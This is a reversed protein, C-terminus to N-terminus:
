RTPCDADPAVPAPADAAVPAAAVPTPAPMPTPVPAAYQPAAPTAVVPAAFHQPVPARVPALDISTGQGQAAEAAKRHKAFLANIRKPKAAPTVVPAPAASTAAIPEDAAAPPNEALADGPQAALCSSALLMGITAAM